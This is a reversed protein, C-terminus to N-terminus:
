VSFRRGRWQGTKSAVVQGLLNDAKSFIESWDSEDTWAPNPLCGEGQSDEVVIADLSPKPAVSPKDTAILESGGVCM